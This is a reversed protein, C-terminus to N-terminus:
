IGAKAPYGHAKWYFDVESGTTANWVQAWLKTGITLVPMKVDEEVGASFPGTATIFMIESCQEAAIADGSTGAGYIFRLLYPTAHDTDTVLVQHPDFHTAGTHVPTDATGCIPIAVGWTDNGSVAVFPSTVTQLIANTEDPGGGGLAGWARAVNHIHDDIEVVEEEVDALTAEQAISTMAGADPIADTVAKVAAIDGTDTQISQVVDGLSNAVLDGTSNLAVGEIQWVPTGIGM